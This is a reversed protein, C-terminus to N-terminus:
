GPVPIPPPPPLGPPHPPTELHCGTALATAAAVLAILLLKRVTKM